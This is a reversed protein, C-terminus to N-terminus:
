NKRTGEDFGKLIVDSVPEAHFEAFVTRSASAFFYQRQPKPPHSCDLKKQQAHSSYCYLVVAVVEDSFMEVVTEAALVATAAAEM